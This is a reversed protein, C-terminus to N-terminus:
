TREVTRRKLSVIKVAQEIAEYPPVGREILEAAKRDVEADWQRKANLYDTV